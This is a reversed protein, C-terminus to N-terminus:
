DHHIVCMNTQGRIPPTSFANSIIGLATCLCQYYKQPIYFSATPFGSGDTLMVQTNMEDAAGTAACSEMCPNRSNIEVLVRIKSKSDENSYLQIVKHFRNIEKFGLYLREGSLSKVPVGSKLSDVVKKSNELKKAVMLDEYEKIFLQREPEPKNWTWPLMKASNKYVQKTMLVIESAIEPHFDHDHSEDFLHTQDSGVSNQRSENQEEKIDDEEDFKAFMNTAKSLATVPHKFFSFISGLPNGICEIDQTEDCGNKEFDASKKLRL